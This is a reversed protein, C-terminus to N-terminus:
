RGVGELFPRPRGEKVALLAARIGAPGDVGEFLPISLASLERDAAPVGGLSWARLLQKHVMHARTPGHAIRTAFEHAESLYTDAPYVRNIVGHQLMTAAPVQESTLAWEAALAHGARDAVRQIGGLLTVIGITQEPHGFRARDSAFILDARLALEFGGGFCLGDVAAITPIPLSEFRNFTALYKDFNKRLGHVDGLDWTKIDGGFSFDPGNASVVAARAGSALTADVAADLEEVMEDDIRNEPAYDLVISAVNDANIEYTLHTM